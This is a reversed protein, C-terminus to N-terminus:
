YIDVTFPSIRRGCVSGIDIVFQKGFSGPDPSIHIQFFTELDFSFGTFIAYTVIQYLWM